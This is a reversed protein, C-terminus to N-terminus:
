SLPLHRARTPVTLFKRTGCILPIEQSAAFNVTLKELLVRSWPTLLYTNILLAPQLFMGQKQSLSLKVLVNVFDAFLNQHYINLQLQTAVRHCHNMVCICLLLVPFTVFCVIYLVCFYM